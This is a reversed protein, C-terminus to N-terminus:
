GNTKKMQAKMREKILRTNKLEAETSNKVIVVMAKLYNEGVTEVYAQAALSSLLPIAMLPTFIIGLVVDTFVEDAFSKEKSLGGIANLESIMQICKGHVIPICLTPVWAVKGAQESFKAICYSGRSELSEIRSDTKASLEDIKSEIIQIKYKYYDNISLLLLEDIGYAKIIIDDDLPYDVAMIRRIPIQSLKENITEALKSNKKSICQTLVIVFPIEYEISLKKILDVEYDELRNSRENVCFWVVNIDDIDSYTKAYEIHSKIEKLTSNTIKRDVELGVTDYLYISYNIKGHTGDKNGTSSDLLRKCEYIRNERTIAAGDGTEAKDEGLVTNIITSKGVGTKGMIFIRIKRM